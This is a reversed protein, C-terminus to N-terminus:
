RKWYGESWIFNKDSNMIAATLWKFTSVALTTSFVSSKREGIHSFTDTFWFACNYVYACLFDVCTQKRTKRVDQELPTQCVVPHYRM